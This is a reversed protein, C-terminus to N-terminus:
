NQFGFIGCGIRCFGMLVRQRYKTKGKLDLVQNVGIDHGVMLVVGGGMSKLMPLHKTKGRVVNNM